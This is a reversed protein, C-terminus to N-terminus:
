GAPWHYLMGYIVVGTISVYLWIPFTIKAIRKHAAWDQRYGRRITVIALVPVAAALVVHTLLITYYVWRWVGEGTFKRSVVHFHYVLYCALFVCSVGFAALMVRKHAETKGQKVLAVGVCLLVGALANLSANVKPLTMVWAPPTAVNDPSPGGSGTSRPLVKRGQLIRRLRAVEEPKQANFKDRVVGTEDVYMLNVSHIVEFGPQRDAGSTEEVPLKFGDRILEYTKNRDGTLFLWKEKDASYSDAYKTLVEPTDREPDVTITVLRFDVNACDEQLSKMAGTVLPCPGACRTFIFGYVAPKGLLDKSTVTAGGRETFKFEGLGKPDWIDGVPQTKLVVVPPAEEDDQAFVASTGLLVFLIGVAGVTARRTLSPSRSGAGLGCGSNVREGNTV